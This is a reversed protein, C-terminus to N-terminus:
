MTDVMRARANFITLINNKNDQAVNTELYWLDNVRDFCCIYNTSGVSGGTTYKKFCFIHVETTM